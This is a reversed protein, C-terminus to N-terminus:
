SEGEFRAQNGVGSSCVTLKHKLRQFFQASLPKTFIDAVQDVTPVHHVDLEKLESLLYQLWILESTANALSRYEAETSSRSVVAQKKSSWSVVNRGLFICYGTTSRRDCLDNGWDADCFGTLNLTESRRLLIGEEATGKLYRLIRKVAKWHLDLPNQMFQCVKNVCYAIEPRTITVYQLGGVISRYDTANPVPDGEDSTLKLSSVMPTPLPRANDMKSRKLLDEIYRKQSLHLGERTAKVEIGLFYNLDGIDKLSFSRNLLLIVQEIEEKCSGTVIIDDAPQELYVEEKLEGNLFANNVDLQRTIWGRSLALTLIVRITTPKIVPSFTETFDFGAKQLFGKAVLRAKYRSVTGDTNRKIKFIWKCGVPRRNPPLEVLTWTKNNILANYEEVM